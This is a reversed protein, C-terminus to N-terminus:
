DEIKSRKQRSFAARRRQARDQVKEYSPQASAGQDLYKGLLNINPYQFLKLIPLETKIAREV